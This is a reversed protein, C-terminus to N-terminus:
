KIVDLISVVIHQSNADRSLSVFYLVECKNSDAPMQQEAAKHHM